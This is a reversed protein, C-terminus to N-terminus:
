LNRIALLLKDRLMHEFEYAPLELIKFAPRAIPLRDVQRKLVLVNFSELGHPPLSPLGTVFSLLLLLDDPQLASVCAVFWDRLPGGQGIWVMKSLLAEPGIPEINCLLVKLMVPSFMSLFERPLVEGFGHVFEKLPFDKDHCLRFRALMKSYRFRNAATVSTLHGAPQLEVGSHPTTFHLALSAVSAEEMGCIRTLLQATRLDVQHLDDFTVDLDLLLKFLADALKVPFVAQHLAALGLLRGFGRLLKPLQARGRAKQTFYAENLDGFELIDLTGDVVEQAVKSLISVLIAQFEKKDEAGNGNLKVGGRLGEGFPKALAGLLTSADQDPSVEITAGRTSRDIHTKVYQRFVTVRETFDCIKPVSAVAMRGEVSLPSPAVFRCLVRMHNLGEMKRLDGVHKREILQGARMQSVIEHVYDFTFTLDACAIEIALRVAGQDCEASALAEFEQLQEHLCVTLLHAFRGDLEAGTEVMLALPHQAIYADLAERAPPQMLRLATVVSLESAGMSLLSIMLESDTSTDVSLDDLVPRNVVSLRGSRGSRQRRLSHEIETMTIEHLGYMLDLVVGPAAQATAPDLPQELQQRVDPRLLACALSTQDHVNELFPQIVAFIQARLKDICASDRSSVFFIFDPSVGLTEAYAARLTEERKNLEEQILDKKNILILYPKSSDRVSDMIRREPGAVHGATFVLVFLSAAPSLRPTMEAIRFREDSAGPFDLVDVAMSYEIVDAVEVKADNVKVVSYSNLSETRAVLDGGTVFGFLQEILSSKGANHVGVFSVLCSKQSLRRLGAMRGVVLLWREIHAQGKPPCNTFVKSQTPDYTQELELLVGRVDEETARWLEIGQGKEKRSLRNFTRLVESELTPIEELFETVDVNLVVLLFGLLQAYQRSVRAQMAQDATHKVRQAAAFLVQPLGSLRGPSEGPARLMKTAYKVPMAPIMAVGGVVYVMGSALYGLGGYLKRFALSLVNETDIAVPQLLVGAMSNIIPLAAQHADLLNQNKEFDDFIQKLQSPNHDTRLLLSELELLYMKYDKGEPQRRPQTNLLARVFAGLFFSVDVRCASIAASSAKVTRKEHSVNCENSRGFDTQLCVRGIATQLGVVRVKVHHTSLASVQIETNDSVWFDDENLFLPAAPGAQRLKYSPKQRGLLPELGEGQFGFEIFDQTHLSTVQTIKPGLLLPKVPVDLLADGGRFKCEVTWVPTAPGPSGLQSLAALAELSSRPQFEGKGNLFACQGCPHFVPVPLFGPTAEFLGSYADNNAICELARNILTKDGGRALTDCCRNLLAVQSDRPWFLSAHKKGAPSASLSAATDPGLCSVPSFAVALVEIALNQQAALHRALLAALHAVSGGFQHGTFLLTAPLPPTPPAKRDLAGAAPPTNGGALGLLTVLPLHRALAIAKSNAQGAEFSELQGDLLDRMHASADIAVVVTYPRTCSLSVTYRLFACEDTAVTYELDHERGLTVGLSKVKLLECVAAHSRCLNNAAVGLTAKTDIIYRGPRMSSFSGDRKPMYEFEEADRLMVIPDTVLAQLQSLLNPVLSELKLVVVGGAIFEYHAIEASARPVGTSNPKSLGRMVECPVCNPKACYRCEAILKAGARAANQSYKQLLPHIPDNKSLAFVVRALGVSLDPLLQLLHPLLDLLTGKRELLKIALQRQFEPNRVSLSKLIEKANQAFFLKSFDSILPELEALLTGLQPDRLKIFSFCGCLHSHHITVSAARAFLASLTEKEQPTVGLTDVLALVRAAEENLVRLLDQQQAAMTMLASHAERLEISPNNLSGLLGPRTVPSESTNFKTKVATPNSKKKPPMTRGMPLQGASMVRPLEHKETRGDDKADIDQSDAEVKSARPSLFKSDKAESFKRRICLVLEKGARLMGMASDDSLIQSGYTIEFDDPKGFKSAYKAMLRAKITGATDEPQVQVMANRCLFEDPFAVKALTAM